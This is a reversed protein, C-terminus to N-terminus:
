VESTEKMNNKLQIKESSKK